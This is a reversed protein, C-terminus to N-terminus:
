ADVGSTQMTIQVLDRHHAHCIAVALADAADVSDLLCGPLLMKIYNLVNRGFITFFTYFKFLRIHIYMDFKLDILEHKLNCM